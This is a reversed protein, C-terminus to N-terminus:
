KTKESFRLTLNSKQLKTHRIFPFQLNAVIDNVIM